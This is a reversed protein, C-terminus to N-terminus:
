AAESDDSPTVDARVYEHRDTISVYGENLLKRRAKDFTGNPVGAHEALRLWEAYSVPADPLVDLTQKARQSLAPGTELKPASGDEVLVCSKGSEVLRLRIDPFEPGDKMKRCILTVSPGEKKVQVVADLAARLASSGREADDSRRSHHDVLISAGTAERIRDLNAIAAGVDRVANEDGRFCRAFTDFVILTPPAPQLQILDLLAGIDNVDTLDVSTTIFDLGPNPAVENASRWAALREGYGSAGEAAVYLARGQKVARNMWPTGTVISLTWDLSLFSKASGPAGFVMSFRNAPLIGDILYEPAPMQELELDSYLRFRHNERVVDDRRMPEHAVGDFRSAHDFSQKQM